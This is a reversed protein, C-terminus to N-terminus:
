LGPEVAEKNKLRRILGSKVTMVLLVIGALWPAIRGPLPTKVTIARSHCAEQCCFCRICRSYEHRPPRTKGGPGWNVAVPNVPCIQICKGCSICLKKDIVPRPAMQEKLLRKIGTGSLGAPPKRTIDFDRCIFQSVPEGIIEISAADMNGIGAKVGAANTPVYSPNINVITCAISDIAVPDTSMLIVGLKRPNGTNPGNGEMAYVADMIYLRPKVFSTVDAVFESFDQPLLFRAHFGAKSAGPICGYQNKVAGTMRTLNHTKLKPLSVVGDSDLVGNAVPFTANAIANKFHVTRGADFDAQVIGLEKAAAALGAPKASAACSGIAPSDGWSVNVGASALIRGAAKFISPHTTVCRNPQAAGLINPKLVIKEKPKFFHSAGGLLNIGKLVAQYVTEEDYSDCAILAVRSNMNYRLSGVTNIKVSTLDIVM